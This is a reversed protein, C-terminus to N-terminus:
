QPTENSSVVVEGQAGRPSVDYKVESKVVDLKPANLASQHAMDLVQTNKADQLRIQENIVERKPAKLANQHAMDLVQTNKADQLRIQDNVVERKPAKLANQHAMDLVQTNKADQLRIQDNVTGVKPANRANAIHLSGDATVQIPKDRPVHKACYIKGAVGTYTKLNLQISCGEAQCKFCGRHYSNGIATWAEKQYVTKGCAACKDAM